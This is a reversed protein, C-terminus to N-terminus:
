STFKQKTPKSQRQNTLSNKVNSLFFGIARKNLSVPSEKLLCVCESRQYQDPGSILAAAGVVAANSSLGATHCSGRSDISSKLKGVKSRVNLTTTTPPPPALLPFNDAIPSSSGQIQQKKKGALKDGGGGSSIGSKRRRTPSDVSQRASSLLPSLSSALLNYGDM